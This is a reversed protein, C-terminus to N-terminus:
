AVLTTLDARGVVGIDRGRAAEEGHHDYGPDGAPALVEAWRGGAVPLDDDAARTLVRVARALGEDVVDVGTVDCGGPTRLANSIRHVPTLREEVYGAVNEGDNAQTGTAAVVDTVRVGLLERLSGLYGDLVAAMTPDVVFSRATVIVQGGGAVFKTLRRALEVDEIFIQPAVVVRYGALDARGPWRAAGHGTSARPGADRSGGSSSRGCERFSRGVM